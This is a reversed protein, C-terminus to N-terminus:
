QIVDLNSMTPANEFTIDGYKQQRMERRTRSEIVTRNADRIIRDHAASESEDRLIGIKQGAAVSGDKTWKGVKCLGKWTWISVRKIGSWTYKGTTVCGNKVSAGFTTPAAQEGYPASSSGQVAIPDTGMGVGQPVAYASSGPYAVTRADAANKLDKTVVTGQQLAFVPSVFVTVMVFLSCVIMCVKEKKM